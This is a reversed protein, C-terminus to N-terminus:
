SNCFFSNCFLTSIVIHSEFTSAGRKLKSIAQFDHFSRNGLKKLEASFDPHNEHSVNQSHILLVQSLIDMIQYLYEILSTTVRCFFLMM